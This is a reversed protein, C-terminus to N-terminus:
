GQRRRFALAAAVIGLAGLFVWTDFGPVGLATPRSQYASDNHNELYTPVNWELMASGATYIVLMILGLILILLRLTRDTGELRLGGVILTCILGGIGLLKISSAVRYSLLDTATSPFVTSIIGGVFLLVIGTSIGLIVAQRMVLKM